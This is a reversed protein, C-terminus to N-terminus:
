SICQLDPIGGEIGFYRWYSVLEDSPKKSHLDIKRALTSWVNLLMGLSLSVSTKLTTPIGFHKRSNITLHETGLDRTFSATLNSQVSKKVLLHSYSFSTGPILKIEGYGEWLSLANWWLLSIRQRILPRHVSCTSSSSRTLLGWTRLSRTRSQSKRWFVATPQRYALKQQIFFYLFLISFFSHM